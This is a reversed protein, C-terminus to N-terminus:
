DLDIPQPAGVESGGAELIQPLLETLGARMWARVLQPPLAAFNSSNKKAEQVRDM